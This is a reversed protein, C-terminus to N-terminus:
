CIAGEKNTTQTQFGQESPSCMSDSRTTRCIQAKPVSLLQTDLESSAQKEKKKLHFEPSAPTQM